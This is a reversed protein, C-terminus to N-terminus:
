VTYVIVGKSRIAEVKDAPAKSDTVLIDIDNISGMNIFRIAGIKTHDAVVIVQKAKSILALNIDTEYPQDNTIGMESDVGNVALFLKDINYLEIQKVSQPGFTAGTEISFNGGILMPKIDPYRRLEHAIYISNTVVIINKLKDLFRAIQLTTTGTYLM